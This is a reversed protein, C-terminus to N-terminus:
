HRVQDTDAIKNNESSLRNQYMTMETSSIPCSVARKKNIGLLQLIMFGCFDSM